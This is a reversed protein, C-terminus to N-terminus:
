ATRQFIITVHCRIALTNTGSVVVEIDGDAAVSLAASPTASDVDGAASGSQTITIESDTVLTGDIELQLSCDATGLAGDICTYWKVIDGAYPVPVFYSTDTDLNAIDLSLTFIPFAWTQLSSAALPVQGDLATSVGKPQHLNTETIASHQITM